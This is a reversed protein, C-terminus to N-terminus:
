SRPNGIAWLNVAGRKYVTYVSRNFRVELNFLSSGVNARRYIQKKKSANPVTGRGGSIRGVIKNPDKASRSLYLTAHYLRTFDLSGNKRVAPVGAYFPDSSPNVASYATVGQMFILAGFILFKKM